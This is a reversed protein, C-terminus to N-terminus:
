SSDYTKKKKKRKEEKFHKNNKQFIRISENMFEQSQEKSIRECTNSNGFYQNIMTAIDENRNAICPDINKDAILIVCQKSNRLFNLGNHQLKILNSSKLHTIKSTELHVSTEFKKLFYETPGAAKPLKWKDNMMHLRPIEDDEFIFNM